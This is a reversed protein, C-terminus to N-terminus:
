VISSILAILATAVFLTTVFRPAVVDHVADALCQMRFWASRHGSCALFHSGLHEAELGTVGSAGSISTATSWSPLAFAQVNM